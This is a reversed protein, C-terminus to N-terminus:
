LSDRIARGAVALLIELAEIKLLGRFRKHSQAGIIRYGVGSSPFQQRRLISIWYGPVTQEPLSLSLSLSLPLPHSNSAPTQRM